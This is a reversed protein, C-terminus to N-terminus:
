EAGSVTGYTWDIIGGFDYIKEYGMDVLLNAAQNSRNGSRCYLLYTATKDPIIEEAQNPITDLTLLIAGEIHAEEFEARTRVDVIIVEQEEMMNKAEEVSIVQVESESKKEEETVPDKAGCGVSLILTLAAATKLMNKYKM